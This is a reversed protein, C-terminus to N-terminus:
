PQRTGTSGTSPPTTYRDTTPTTYRDVNDRRRLGLLGALGLLGIWGWDQDDDDRDNDVMRGPQTTTDTTPTQASAVVPLVAGAVILGTTFAARRFIRRLEVERM